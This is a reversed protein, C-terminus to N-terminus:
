NHTPPRPTTAAPLTVKVGEARPLLLEDFENIGHEAAQNCAHEADASHAGNGAASGLGYADNTAGMSAPSSGLDQCTATGCNPEVPRCGLAVTRGNPM